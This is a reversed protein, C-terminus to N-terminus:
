PPEAFPAKANGSAWPYLNPSAAKVKVGVKIMGNTRRTSPYRDGGDNFVIQRCIRRQAGCVSATANTRSWLQDRYSGRAAYNLAFTAKPRAPPM